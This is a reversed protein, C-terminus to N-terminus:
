STAAQAGKTGPIQTYVNFGVTLDQLLVEVTIAFVIMNVTM